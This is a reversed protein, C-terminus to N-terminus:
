HNAAFQGAQVIITEVHVEDKHIMGHCLSEQHSVEPDPHGTKNKELRVADLKCIQNAFIGPSYHYACVSIFTEWTSSFFVVLIVCIPPSQTLEMTM